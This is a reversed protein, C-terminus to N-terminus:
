SRHGANGALRAARCRLTEVCELRLYVAKNAFYCRKGDRDAVTKLTHVLPELLHVLPELLHVPPELLHVPPELLHVPPELGHVAPEISHVLPEGIHVSSKVTKDVEQVADVDLM